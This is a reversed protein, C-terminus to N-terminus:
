WRAFPKEFNKKPQKLLFTQEAETAITAHFNLAFECHYDVVDVLQEFVQARPEFIDVRYTSVEASSQHEPISDCLV